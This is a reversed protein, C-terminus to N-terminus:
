TDGNWYSYRTPVPYVGVVPIHKIKLNPESVRLERVTGWSGGRNIMSLEDYTQNGDKNKDDWDYLYLSSIKMDDAYMKSSSNLFESFPFNLNLIMLSADEPIPKSKQFFSFLDLHQKVNELPLYNPRFVESKNLLPDKLNLMTTGNYQSKKILKLTKPSIHIELQHDTPNEITFTAFTRDGPFLRGGFWSTEPFSSNNLQFRELGIYSSNVSKIPIDLIKKINYYSANNHVIFTDDNGEVFNVANTVNVLGSGQAFPDNQLDSATSMLINEIRFPDYKEGKHQLSEMLIAASGAVLPAALSTGGFITFPGTSNKNYKTVSSPTFSYEGIAMLDPKPDGILSPGRSSFGAVDGAFYTSNGFRPQNKFGGSGIYINNTSAGVTLAYPAVDPTGITGYGYGANGSSSVVLIGPYNKDLSGPVELASLLLSQIDFGPVSQLLPFTSIGWSNSLIDVRPKGQFVWTNLEQNFGAAWLWGAIADGFWLAKIPVIKAGPAIGILSYNTSNNYIDYKGIGKSTISAATSTGHGQFDYMVGFYNGKEDLPSLLTGNIAGIKTDIKSSNGFVGYVDLVQAGLTGASYDIKGDHKSDYLLFENGDGLVIPKEDTFDFDFKTANDTPEDFHTFDKWSDSMDPIITDYKGAIKSDIVLVPVLQLRSIQGQMVTEYIVGFHYVGSKSIIFNKNSKGIEYDTSITGNLILDGEKPYRSNFVQVHTGNGNKNLNLFVGKSNVYVDSTINKPIIKTYNQMIGKENVNAIFTTNTLVLGQGDTDIMVPVNNKDRSISDKIDPNSFDTGTDVIGIKIGRGTFNYKKYIAESGLIKGVRSGENPLITKNVQSSSDFELPIDEIVTNGKLKLNLVDNQSFVGISFFGNQTRAEYIIKHAISRVDGISGSGLIIYRKVPNENSGSLFTILQSKELLNTAQGPHPLDFDYFAFAPKAIVSFLLIFILFVTLEQIIFFGKKGM